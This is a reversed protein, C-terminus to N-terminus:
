SHLAWGGACNVQVVLLIFFRVKNAAGSPSGCLVGRRLQGACYAILAGQQSRWTSLHEV